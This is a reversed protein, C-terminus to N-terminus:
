KKKPKITERLSISTISSGWKIKMLHTAILMLIPHKEGWPVLMEYVTSNYVEDDKRHKERAEKIRDLVYKRYKLRARDREEERTLPRELNSLKDIGASVDELNQKLEADTMMTEGEVVTNISRAAAVPVPNM